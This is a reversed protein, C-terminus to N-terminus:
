GPGIVRAALISLQKTTLAFFVFSLSVYVYNIVAGGVHGFRSNLWWVRGPNTPKKSRRIALYALGVGHILGYVIYGVTAGHWLGVLLFTIIPPIVTAVYPHPRLARTRKVTLSLPYFLYDRLIHSLTIHWRNWFDALNRAIFPNNFNEPLRVGWFVATGIALHCYGAFDLYLYLSYMLAAFILTAWPSVSLSGDSLQPLTMSHINDALAVKMFLGILIRRLGWIADDITLKATGFQEQWDQFRQMPGAVISPLFFMWGLFSLPEVNSIEGARYDVFFHILKFGIYSIGVIEILAAAHRATGFAGGSNANPMIALPVVYKELIWYLLYAVFFLLPAIARGTGATAAPKSVSLALGFLIAAVLGVGAISGYGFAYIMVLQSVLFALQGIWRPKGSLLGSVTFLLGLAVPGFTQLLFSANM